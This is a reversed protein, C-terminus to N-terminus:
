LKYINSIGEKSPVAFMGYDFKELAQTIVIAAATKLGNQLEASTTTPFLPVVDKVSGWLFIDCVSLHPSRPM